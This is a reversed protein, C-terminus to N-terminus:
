KLKSERHREVAARAEPHDCKGWHEVFLKRREEYNQKVFEPDLTKWSSHEAHYYRPGVICCCDMKAKTVMDLHLWDDELAWGPGGYPGEETFRIGGVSFPEISFMGYQTWAIQRENIRRPYGMWNKSNPTADAINRVYDLSWVGVCYYESRMLEGAMKSVSGPIVVIDGDNFFIMDAKEAIAAEVAKNRARSCGINDRNLLAIDATGLIECTGDTSGNDVGIIFSKYGVTRLIEQENRLASLAITSPEVTNFGLLALAIKM